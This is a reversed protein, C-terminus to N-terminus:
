LVDIEARVRVDDQRGAAVAPVLPEVHHDLAVGDPDSVGGPQTAEGIGPGGLPVASPLELCRAAAEPILVSMFRQHIPDPRGLNQRERLAGEAMGPMDESARGAMWGASVRCRGTSSLCRTPRVTTAASQVASTSASRATFSPRASISPR